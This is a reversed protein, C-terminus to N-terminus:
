KKAKLGLLDWFHGTFAGHVFSFLLAIGLPILASLVDGARAKNSLIPIQDAYMYLTYYLAASAVGLALTTSLASLKSM